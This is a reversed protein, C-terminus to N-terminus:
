SGPWAATHEHVGGPALPNIHRIGEFRKFDNDASCVVCGHEIAIAAIHADSTLNGAAGSDALLRSLILWHKEGPNLPTVYPQALWENVYGLAREVATPSRLVRAHTSLRVFALLVLWPLGVPTTGSLVEEWWARAALHPPADRNVAYILINADVLIM